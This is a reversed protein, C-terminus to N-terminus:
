LWDGTIACSATFACSLAYLFLMIAVAAVFSRRGRNAWVVIGSAFLDVFLTWRLTNEQWWQISHRPRYEFVAGWILMAFPIAILPVLLLLQPDDLENRKKVDVFSVFMWIAVPVSVPWAFVLGPTAQSFLDFFRGLSNTALLVVAGAIASASLTVAFWFSIRHVTPSPPSVFGPSQYPNDTVPRGQKM